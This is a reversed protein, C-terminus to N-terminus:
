FTEYTVVMEQDVSRTSSQQAKLQKSLLNHAKSKNDVLTGQSLSQEIEIGGESQSDEANNQEFSNNAINKHYVGNDLQGNNNFEYQRDIERVKKSFRLM